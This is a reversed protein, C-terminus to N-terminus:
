ELDTPTKADEEKTKESNIGLACLSVPTWKMQYLILIIKVQLQLELFEADYNLREVFLFSFSSACLLHFKKLSLFRSTGM